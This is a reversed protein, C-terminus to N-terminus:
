NQKDFYYDFISNADPLNSSLMQQKMTNRDYDAHIREYSWTGNPEVTILVGQAYNHKHCGVSGVNCYTKAGKVDCLEHKHGFFVADCNLYAFMEDLDEATPNHRIEQWLYGTPLPEDLFAYHTFVFNVGYITMDIQPVFKDKTFLLDQMSDFVYRKHQATVKSYQHQTAKDKFFAFDHNGLVLKVNRQLLLQLCERSHMGIDVVDGLHIIEQAGQQQLQDLIAILAPLNGHVDTIVGIKVSLKNM